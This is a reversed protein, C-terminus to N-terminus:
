NIFTKVIEKHALPNAILIANKKMLDIPEGTRQTFTLGLEQAMVYGPAIDWTQLPTTVYASVRNMLVQVMELGASGILRVGLAEDILQQAEEMESLAMKTNIALLGEKLPHEEIPELRRENCYVGEGQVSYYVDEHIVDNIFALVGEGDKFLALMSCFNSKQKVYNLTGDIPDIVWIFGDLDNIEDYTGEEGYIKHDPFHARIKEVYFAEISKDMETVLDSPNTKEEVKLSTNQLSERLLDGAEEVWGKVLEAMEKYNM